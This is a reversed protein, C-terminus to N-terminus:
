GKHMLQPASFFHRALWINFMNRVISQLRKMSFIAKWYFFVLSTTAKKSISTAVNGHKLQFVRLQNSLLCKVNWKCKILTIATTSVRYLPPM